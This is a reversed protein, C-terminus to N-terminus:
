RLRRVLSRTALLGGVVVAAQRARAAYTRTGEPLRELRFPCPTFGTIVADVAGSPGRSFVLPLVYGDYTVSYADPDRAADAPYLRLGRRFPGIPARAVLHDGADAIEIEGGLYQLARVNTAMGPACRYVGVQDAWTGPRASGDFDSAPAVPGPAPLCLVRRLVASAVHGGGFFASPMVGRNLLVAVGVGAGPSVVFGTSFGPLTGGHGATYTSDTGDLWWALGVKALRPDIGFQPTMMLRATDRQLIRKDGATAWLVGSAYAAMDTITAYVGGAPLAAIDYFRTPSAVGRRIRYGTALASDVEGDRRPAATSMGLPEFIREVLLDGYTRGTIAEAVMGLLTFGVNSYAWKTGPPAESVVGDPFLEGLPPMRSGPLSAGLARVPNRLSRPSAIEGIGSTHTLLHRITVDDAPNGGRTVEVGQLHKNVPDDLGALGADVLQLVLTATMTKTVSAIRFRTAEDVPRGTAIDALGYCRVLPAGDPHVVAVAAGPVDMAGLHERVVEDLDDVGIM